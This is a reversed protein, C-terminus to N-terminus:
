HASAPTAPTVFFDQHMGAAYHGSLNCVLAYHGTAMDVTIMKYGGPPLAAGTDIVATGAKDEDIRNPEGEFSAIPFAGAATATRFGVLEHKMTDENTILFSVKGAPAFDQSLHIFMHTADTSGLTVTVVPVPSGYGEIPAPAVVPGGQYGPIFAVTGAVEPPHANCAAMLLLAVLVPVGVLWHAVRKRDARM